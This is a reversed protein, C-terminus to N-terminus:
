RNLGAMPDTIHIRSERVWYERLTPIAASHFGPGSLRPSAASIILLGM